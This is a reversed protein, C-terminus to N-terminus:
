KHDDLYQTKKGSNESNSKPDILEHNIL